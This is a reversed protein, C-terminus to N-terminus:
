IATKRKFLKWNSLRVKWLKRVGWSIMKRANAAKKSQCAAFLNRTKKRLVEWKKEWNHFRIKKPNSSRKFSARLTGWIKPKNSSLHRSLIGLNKFSGIIRNCLRKSFRSTSWVFKLASKTMQYMACFYISHSPNTWLAKQLSTLESIILIMLLFSLFNYRLKRARSFTTWSKSFNKM